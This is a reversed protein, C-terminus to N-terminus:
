GLFYESKEYDEKRKTQPTTEELITSTFIVKDRKKERYEDKHHVHQESVIDERVFYNGNKEMDKLNEM